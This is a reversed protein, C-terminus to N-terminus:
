TLSSRSSPFGLPVERESPAGLPAIPGITTYYDHTQHEGAMITYAHLKTLPAARERIYPNRLDDDPHRHEVATPRGPVIDSYSQVLTNADKGFLRDM